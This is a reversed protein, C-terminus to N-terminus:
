TRQVPQVEGSIRANVVNEGNGVEFSLDRVAPVAGYRVELGDVALM